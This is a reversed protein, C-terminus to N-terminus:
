LSVAIELARALSERIAYYLAAPDNSAPAENPRNSAQKTATM